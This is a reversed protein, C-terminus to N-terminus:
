TMKTDAVFVHEEDFCLSQISLGKEKHKVLCSYSCQHIPEDKLHFLPPHKQGHWAVIGHNNGLNRNGIAIVRHRPRGQDDLIGLDKLQDELPVKFKRLAEETRKFEAQGRWRIMGEGRNLENWFRVEMLADEIEQVPIEVLLNNTLGHIKNICVKM